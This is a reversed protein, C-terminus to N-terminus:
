KIIKENENTSLLALTHSLIRVSLHNPQGRSKLIRYYHHFAFWAYAFHGYAFHGYAFHYVYHDYAFHYVYHGYAFHYVYHDYAFHYVYHGYAFRDSRGSPALKISENIDHNFWLM